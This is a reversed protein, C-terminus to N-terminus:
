NKVEFKLQLEKAPYEIPFFNSPQFGVQTIEAITANAPIDPPINKKVWEAGLRYKVADLDEGIHIYPSDLTGTSLATILSHVEIAISNLKANQLQRFLELANEHQYENDKVINAFLEKLTQKQESTIASMEIWEPINERYFSKKTSEEVWLRAAKNQITRLDEITISDKNKRGKKLQDRILYLEDILPMFTKAAKVFDMREEDTVMVQLENGNDAKYENQYLKNASERWESNLISYGQDPNYANFDWQLASKDLTNVDMDSILGMPVPRFGMQLLENVSKGELDKAFYIHSFSIDEITKQLDKFTHILETNSGEQLILKNYISNLFERTSSLQFKFENGFYMKLDDVNKPGWMENGFIKQILQDVQDKQSDLYQNIYESQLNKVEKIQETTPEITLFQNMKEKIDRMLEEPSKQKLSAENNTQITANVETAEKHELASQTESADKVIFENEENLEKQKLYDQIQGTLEDIGFDLTEETTIAGLLGGILEYKPDLGNKKLLYTILDIRFQKEMINRKKIDLQPETTLTSSMTLAVNREAEQFDKMREIFSKIINDFLNLDEESYAQEASYFSHGERFKSYPYQRILRYSQTQKLYQLLKEQNTQAFEHAFALKMLEEFNVDETNDIYGEVDYKELLESLEMYLYDNFMDIQHTSVFKDYETDLEKESFLDHLNIEPIRPLDVEEIPYMFDKPQEITQKSQTGFITETVNSWTKKIRTQLDPQEEFVVQAKIEEQTSNANPKFGFFIIKTAKHSQIDIDEDDENGHQFPVGANTLELYTKGLTERHTYITGGELVELGEKLKYYFPQINKLEEKPIQGIRFGEYINYLYNMAIQRYENDEFIHKFNSIVDESNLHPYVKSLLDGYNKILEENETFWKQAMKTQITEYAEKRNNRDEESTLENNQALENRTRELDEKMSEFTEQQVVDAEPQAESGSQESQQEERQVEPAEHHEVEVQESQSDAESTQEEQAPPVRNLFQTREQPVWAKSEEERQKEKEIQDEWYAIRAESAIQQQNQLKGRADKIITYEKRMQPGAFLGRSNRTKETEIIRRHLDIANQEEQTIRRESIETDTIDRKVAPDEVRYREFYLDRHTKTTEPQETEIEPTEIADSEIGLINRIHQNRLERAKKKFDSKVDESIVSTDESSIQEAIDVM